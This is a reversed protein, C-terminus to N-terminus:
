DRLRVYLNEEIHIFKLRQLERPSCSVNDFIEQYSGHKTFM